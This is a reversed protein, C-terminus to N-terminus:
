RRIQLGFHVVGAQNTYTVGLAKPWTCVTKNRDAVVCWGWLLTHHLARAAVLPHAPQFHSLKPNQKKPNEWVIFVHLYVKGSYFFASM